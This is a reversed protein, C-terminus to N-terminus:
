EQRKGNYIPIVEIDEKLVTTLESETIGCIAAFNRDMTINTLNNITSFISLQSFKTIGIIFCFKIIAENAKLPQYFEQM